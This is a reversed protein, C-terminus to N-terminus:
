SCFAHTMQPAWPPLYMLYVVTGTWLIILNYFLMTLVQTMEPAWPLLYVLYAATGSWLIFFKFFLFCADDTPGVTPPVGPIGSHEVVSYFVQLVTLVKRMQPAWPLLYVLYAATSMWLIFFKFFLFCADDTIGVTPPVGPKSNHEVM